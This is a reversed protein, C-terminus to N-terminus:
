YVISSVDAFERIVYCYEQSSWAAFVPVLELWTPRMPKHAVKGRIILHTYM